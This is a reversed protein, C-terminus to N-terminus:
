VYMQTSMRCESSKGTKVQMSKTKNGIDKARRLVVQNEQWKGFGFERFRLAAAARPAPNGDKKVGSGWSGNSIM